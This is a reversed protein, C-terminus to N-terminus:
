QAPPDPAVPLTGRCNPYHPCGWFSSGAHRGRAATRLVMPTGCSPCRPPTEQSPAAAAAAAPRGAVIQALSGEVEQRTYAARARMRVLPLGASAFAHDVWEDRARRDARAHSSDDLEIAGLPRLTAPDCLLFDVHKRDIRNRASLAARKDQTVPYFLDGLSVKPCVIARGGAASQLLRFVVAEPPSLLDDRVRYPPPAAHEGFLGAVYDVLATLCGRHAM